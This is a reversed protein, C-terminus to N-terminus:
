LRVAGPLWSHGPRNSHAVDMSSASKCSDGGFKQVQFTRVVGILAGGTVAAIDFGSLAPYGAIALNFVRAGPARESFDSFFLRLAYRMAPDAPFAGAM